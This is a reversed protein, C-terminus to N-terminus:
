LQRSLVTWLSVHYPGFLNRNAQQISIAIVLLQCVLKGAAFVICSHLTNVYLLEDILKASIAFLSDM